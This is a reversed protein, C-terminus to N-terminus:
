RAGKYHVGGKLIQSAQGCLNRAELIKGLQAGPEEACVSLAEGLEAFILAAKKIQDLTLIPVTIRTCNRGGLFQAHYDQEKLSRLMIGVGLASQKTQKALAQKREL